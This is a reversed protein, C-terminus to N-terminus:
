VRKFIGVSSNHVTNNVLIDTKGNHDYAAEVMLRIIDYNLVDIDSRFTEPM